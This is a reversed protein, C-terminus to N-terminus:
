RQNSPHSWLRDWGPVFPADFGSLTKIQHHHRELIKNIAHGMSSVTQTPLATTSSLRRDEEGEARMLGYLDMDAWAKLREPERQTLNAKM